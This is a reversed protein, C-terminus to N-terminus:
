QLRVRATHWSFCQCLPVRLPGWGHEISFLDVLPFRGHCQVEGSAVCLDVLVGQDEVQGCAFGAWTRHEAFRKCNHCRFSALNSITRVSLETAKSCGGLHLVILNEEVPCVVKLLNQIHHLVAVKGVKDVGFQMLVELLLVFTNANMLRTVEEICVIQLCPNHNCHRIRGELEIAVRLTQVEKHTQIQGAVEVECCRITTLKVVQDVFTVERTIGLDDFGHLNSISQTQRNIYVFPM